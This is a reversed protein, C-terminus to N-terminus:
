WVVLTGSDQARLRKILPLAEIASDDPVVVLWRGTQRVMDLDWCRASLVGGKSSVVTLKRCQSLSATKLGLGFRGLDTAGRQDTPSSSGHRMAHTLEDPAMGSGDDLIALFPSGAAADYQVQVTRAE